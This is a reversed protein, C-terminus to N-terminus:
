SPLSIRPCGRKKGVNQTPTLPLSPENLKRMHEPEKHSNLRSRTGGLTNSIFEESLKAYFHYLSSARKTGIGGKQLLYADVICMSLLDQM